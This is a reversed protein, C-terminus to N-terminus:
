VRSSPSQLDHLLRDLEVPLNRPQGAAQAATVVARGIDRLKINNNCAWRRLLDFATDADIGFRGILIGKAQEIAPLTSLRRRMHALEANADEGPTGWDDGCREDASNPDSTREPPSAM